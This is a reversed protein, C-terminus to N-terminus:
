KAEMMPVPGSGRLLARSSAQPSSGADPALAPSASLVRRNQSRKKPIFLGFGPDRLKRRVRGKLSM